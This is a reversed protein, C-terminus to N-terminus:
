REDAAEEQAADARMEDAVARNRDKHDRRWFRGLCSPFARTLSRALGTPRFFSTYFNLQRQRIGELKAFSLKTLEAQMHISIDIRSLFPGTNSSAAKLCAHTIPCVDQRFFKMVYMMLTPELLVYLPSRASFQGNRRNTYVSLRLTYIHTYAQLLTLASYFRSKSMCM